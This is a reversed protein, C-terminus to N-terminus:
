IMDLRAYVDSINTRIAARSHHHLHPHSHM